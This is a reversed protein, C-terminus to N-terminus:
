PRPAIAYAHSINRNRRQANEDKPLYSRMYDVLVREPSVRVRLYGPSGLITGSLYGYERASNASDYRPFGPQPVEQYVIGDLEQKVFLHDHGHFVASVHNEALLKHIPAPWGKRREAFGDTGDSNRGGWEFFAAAESGGRAQADGGGVLHHIFLFKYRAPSTELTQKLWAYQSEGLTWAWGTNNLNAGGGQAQRTNWFPNLVIFLADGWHWAYYDELPGAVPDATTNGSYFSDPAPNPFYTKRMANSWVAMNDSGGTLFRGMEGDHNGLAIFLPASPCLLGFYYRQALYQKEADKYSPYKDTMFTDGLDIHFDPNEALVNAMSQVYLAPETNEDLHSDAQMTFVFESGPPRQTHFSYVPTQEFADGGPMRLNLRYFYRTDPELADLLITAPRRAAFAESPTSRDLEQADVGFEVFGERDAYTLLSLAVSDATPRALVLDYPHDPVDTRFLTSSSQFGFAFLASAFLISHRKM